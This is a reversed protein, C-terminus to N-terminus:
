TSYPVDKPVKNLASTMLERPSMDARGKTVEAGGSPGIDRVTTKKEIDPSLKSATTKSKAGKQLVYDKMEETTKFKDLEEVPIDYKTSLGVLTDRRQDAVRGEREVRLESELRRKDKALGTLRQSIEATSKDMTTTERLTDLEAEIDGKENRSTALEGELLQSKKEAMSLKTDYESRLNDIDTEPVTRVAESKGDTSATTESSAEETEVKEPM